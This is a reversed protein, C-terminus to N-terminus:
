NKKWCGGLHQKWQQISWQCQWQHQWWQWQYQWRQWHSYQWGYWTVGPNRDNSQLDPKQKGSPVKLLKLPGIPLKDVNTSHIKWFDQSPPNQLLKLSQLTLTTILLVQFLLAFGFDTAKHGCFLPWIRMWFESYGMGVLILGWMAM